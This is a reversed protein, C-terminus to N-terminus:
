LNSWCYHGKGDRHMQSDIQLFSQFKMLEYNNGGFKM